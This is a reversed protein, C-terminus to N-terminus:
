SQLDVVYVRSLDSLDVGPDVRLIYLLGNDPDPALDVVTGITISPPWQPDDPRTLVVDGTRIAGDKVYRHHVDHIEIRGRGRGVLWFLEEMPELRGETVHGICVSMRTAPDTLLRVRSTHTSVQDLVGVLTEAALVAMGEEVDQSGALDISFHESIVADGRQVGRRSGVLLSKSARWALADAAIAHAPILRGRLGLGRGRVRTLKENERRLDANQASLTAIVSNLGDAQRAAGSRDPSSSVLTAVAEGARASAQQLPSLVQLLGGLYGTLSAPLLFLILAVVSLFVPIQQTRLSRIRLSAFRSKM